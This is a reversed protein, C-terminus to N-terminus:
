AGTIWEHRDRYARVYELFLHAQPAHVGRRWALAVVYQPPPAVPVVALGASRAAQASVEAAIAIAAGDRIVCSDTDEPLM